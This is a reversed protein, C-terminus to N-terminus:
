VWKGELNNPVAYNQMKDLLIAPDSEIIIRSVYQKKLFGDEVAKNMFAVIGDYYGNVNYFAVPSAHLDLQAWTLVEFVEDLTGFGGSMAIFGDSLEIMRAKRTHMDAVVELTTLGRHGVELDMLFQPIVGIVKGKHDLVEDAIEGMLGVSGAGYVLQIHRNVFVRGLARAKDIYIAKNGKSSGCYVAIRKMETNKIM